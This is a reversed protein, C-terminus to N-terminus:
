RTNCTSTLTFFGKRKSERMVEEVLKDRKLDESNRRWRPKRPKGDRGLRVKGAPEELEVDGGQLRRKAAETRVANLSAADPGLDVEQLKGLAAPQRQVIADIISASSGGMSKSTLTSQNTHMYRQKALESDVYAM